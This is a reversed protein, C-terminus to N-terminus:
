RNQIWWVLLTIVGAGLASSAGKLAHVGATRAWKPWNSQPKARVPQSESLSGSSEM